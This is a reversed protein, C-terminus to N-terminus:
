CINKGDVYYAMACELARGVIYYNKIGMKELRTRMEKAGNNAAIIITYGFFEREMNDICIVKKSCIEDYDRHETVCYCEVKEYIGKKSLYRGVLTGIEGAGYIITKRSDMVKEDLENCILSLNKKYIDEYERLICLDDVTRRELEYLLQRSIELLGLKIKDETNKDQIYKELRRLITEYSHICRDNNGSISISGKRQRYLYIDKEIYVVDKASMHCDITFLVDEYYIKEIFRFLNKEYFDRALAYLWVENGYRKSSIRYLFMEKGSMEIYSINDKQETLYDEKEFVDNLRKCGFIVMDKGQSCKSYVIELADDAWADDSDMFLIWEGALHNFAENRAGSLGKNQQSVIKMKGYRSKYKELIDLSDDTSGDNVAIVEFDNFSQSYISDLCEGLYKEVNYVPLIISFFPREVM